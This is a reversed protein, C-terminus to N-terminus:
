NLKQHRQNSISSQASHFPFKREHQVIAARVFVRRNRCLDRSNAVLNGITLGSNWWLHNFNLFNGCKFKKRNKAM